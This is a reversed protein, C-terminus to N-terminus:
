GGVPMGDWLLEQLMYCGNKNFKSNKGVAIVAVAVGAAVAVM